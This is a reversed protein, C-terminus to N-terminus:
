RRLNELFWNPTVAILSGGNGAECWVCYRSEDAICAIDRIFWDGDRKFMGYVHGTGSQNCRVHYVKWEYGLAEAMNILMQLLDTCNGSKTEIVENNSKQDDFYFQYTFHDRIYDCVDDIYEPTFKFTNVWKTFVTNKDETPKVFAKSNVNVTKPLEGHKSYYVLIASFLNTFDKVGMLKEGIRITNPITNHSEVYDVLRKAMDLYVSRKIQRSFYNGKDINSAKDVNIKKVPSHRQLIAKALYYDWKTSEVLKHQKMIGLQIKWAEDIITEYTISSM